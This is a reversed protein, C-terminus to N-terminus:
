TADDLNDRLSLAFCIRAYKVSLIVTTVNIGRQQDGKALSTKQV